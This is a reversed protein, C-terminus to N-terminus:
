IFIIYNVFVYCKCFFFTNEFSTIDCVSTNDRNILTTPEESPGVRLPSSGFPVFESPLHDVPSSEEDACDTSQSSEYMNRETVVVALVIYTSKFLIIYYM